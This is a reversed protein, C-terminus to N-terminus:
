IRPGRKGATGTAPKEDKKTSEGTKTETVQTAAPKIVNAPPVVTLNSQQLASSVSTLGIGRDNCATISAAVIAQLDGSQQAAVIAAPMTAAGCFVQAQITTVALVGRTVPATPQWGGAPQINQAVLLDKYDNATPNSPLFSALGLQQVLDQMLQLQTQTGVATNADGSDQARVPCLMATGVLVAVLMSIIKM